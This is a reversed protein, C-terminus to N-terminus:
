SPLLAEVLGLGYHVCRCLSIGLAMNLGGVEQTELIGTAVPFLFLLPQMGM